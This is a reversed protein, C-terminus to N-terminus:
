RYIGITLEAEPNGANPRTRMGEGAPSDPSWRVRSGRMRQLGRLALNWSAVVDRTTIAGGLQVLRYNVFRLSRGNPSTKSTGRPDVYIVKIGEVLAKYEAYEQIRRYCWMPREWSLRRGGNGSERLKELDEFVVVANYERAVEVLRRSIYHASDVLISRARSLWRARVRRAWRLFRWSRPYRRQLGEALKRYHLARSLGRFPIVGMSILNGGLDVITYTVNNFNIDVGVVTQPERPVVDRHFTIYVYFRGYRYSVLVEGPRWSGDLYRDLYSYWRLKLVVWRDHLVAVKITKTELDLKYDLTHVRATLRRLVPKSGGNRKTSEVVERARRYIESVHHARFGLGRLRGYFVRHLTKESPVQSLGWIGDVVQQVSDRYTRLFELVLGEDGEPTVAEVKATVTVRVPLSM